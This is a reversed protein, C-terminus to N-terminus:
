EGDKETREVPIREGGDQKRISRQEKELKWRRESNGGGKLKM